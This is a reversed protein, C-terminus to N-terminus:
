AFNKSYPALELAKKELEKPFVAKHTTGLMEKGAANLVLGTIKKFKAIIGSKRNIRKGTTCVYVWVIKKKIIDRAYIRKKITVKITNGISTKKFKNRKANVHICLTKQADSNDVINIKSEKIIM